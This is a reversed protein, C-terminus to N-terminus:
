WQQKYRHPRFSKANADLNFQNQANDGVGVMMHPEYYGGNGHSLDTSETGYLNGTSPTYLSEGYWGGGAQSTASAMMGTTWTSGATIGHGGSVYVVQPTTPSPTVYGFGPPAPIYQGMVQAQSLQQQMGTYVSADVTMDYPASPDGGRGSSGASLPSDVYNSAVAASSAGTVASAGAGAGASTARHQSKSYAGNSYSARDSSSPKNRSVTESTNYEVYHDYKGNSAFRSYLDQSYSGTEYPVATAAAPASTSINANSNSKNKNGFLMNLSTTGFGSAAAATTTIASSPKFEPASAKLKPDVYKSDYKTEQSQASSQTQSYTQSHSPPKSTDKTYKRERNPPANKKWGVNESPLKLECGTADWGDTQIPPDDQPPKQQVPNALSQSNTITSRRNKSDSDKMHRADQVQVTGRMPDTTTTPPNLASVNEGAAYQSNRNKSVRLEKTAHNRQSNYRANSDNIQENHISINTISTVSTTNLEPTNGAHRNRRQDQKKVNNRRNDSRDRRNSTPNTSDEELLEIFKDHKWVTDDDAVKHPRPM